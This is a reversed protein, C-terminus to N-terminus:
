RKKKRKFLKTLLRTIIGAILAVISKILLDNSPEPHVTVNELGTMSVFSAGGAIGMDKITDVLTLIDLKM